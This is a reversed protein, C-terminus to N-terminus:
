SLRPIHKCVKKILRNLQRDPPFTQKIIRLLRIQEDLSLILLFKFVLKCGLERITKSPGEISMKLIIPLVHAHFLPKLYSHHYTSDVFIKSFFNTTVFTLKPQNMEQTFMWFIDSAMAKSKCQKFVSEVANMYSSNEISLKSKLMYSKWTENASIDSHSDTRTFHSSLWKFSQLQIRKSSSFLGLELQELECSSLPPASRKASCRNLRNIIPTEHKQDLYSLRTYLQKLRIFLTDLQVWDEMNSSSINLSINNPIAYGKQNFHLLTHKFSHIQESYRPLWSRVDQANHKSTKSFNAISRMNGSGLFDFAISVCDYPLPSYNMLEVIFPLYKFFVLSM